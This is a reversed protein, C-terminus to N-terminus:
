STVSQRSLTEEAIFRQSCVRYGYFRCFESPLEHHASNSPAVGAIAVQDPRLDRYHGLCVGVAQSV